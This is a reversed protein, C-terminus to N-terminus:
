CGVLQARGLGVKDTSDILILLITLGQAKNLM